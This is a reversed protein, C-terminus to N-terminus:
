TPGPVSETRYLRFGRGIYNRLANPHDWSSTSLWIRRAGLRWCSDVVATLFPAGLRRGVFEPLLGFSDLEFDGDPAAVIAAMGITAGGHCGTWRLMDDRQLEASWEDQTWNTSSWRHPLGVRRHLDMFEAASAPVLEVVVQSSRPRRLEDRRTMELYWRTKKSM